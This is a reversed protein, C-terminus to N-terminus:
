LLHKRKRVDGSQLGSILDYSTASQTMHLAHSGHQLVSLLKSSSM